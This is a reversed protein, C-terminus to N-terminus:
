IKVPSLWARRGQADTLECRIYSEGEGRQLRYVHETMGKGRRCRDDVWVLNSIFCCQEVPSTKLTLYEGDIEASYIEPGQTAYFSGRRLAAIVAEPTQADAQVMTSSVCQEGTYFHSDDSALQPLLRGATAVLDLLLGSDARPANWPAGSFSNYVEAGCVGELSQLFAPTNLSWAPHAAIAAGGVANIRSILQQHSMSRDFGQAAAENPFVGVIHLAQDPFAFDFEMGTMVLMDGHRQIPYSHWHDSILLVEYGHDAYTQIVDEPSRRGDSRTTHTHLNCKYSKKAADILKM